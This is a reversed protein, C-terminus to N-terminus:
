VTIDKKEWISSAALLFGLIYIIIIAVPQYIDRFNSIQGMTLKVLDFVLQSFAYNKILEFPQVIVIISVTHFGLATVATLMPRTSLTSIMLTFAALVMSGLIYVLYIFVLKPLLSSFNDPYGWHIGVISSIVMLGYSIGAIYLFVAVFKSVVLNERKVPKTLVEKLVGTSAEGCSIYVTILITLLPITFIGMGQFYITDVVMSPGTYSGPPRAAYTSLIYLVGALFVVIAGAHAVRDKFLKKTEFKILRYLSM